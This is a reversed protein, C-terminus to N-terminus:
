ITDAVCDCLSRVHGIESGLFVTECFYAQGEFFVSHVKEDKILCTVGPIGRLNKHYLVLKLNQKLWKVNTIIHMSFNSCDSQNLAEIFGM